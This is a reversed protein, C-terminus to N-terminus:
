ATRSFSGCDSTYSTPFAVPRGSSPMSGTPVAHTGQAVRDFIRGEHRTRESLLIATARQSRARHRISRNVDETRNKIKQHMSMYGDFRWYLTQTRMKLALCVRASPRPYRPGSPKSAQLGREAIKVLRPIKIDHESTDHSM